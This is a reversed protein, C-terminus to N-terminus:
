LVGNDPRRLGFNHPFRLVRSRWYSDASIGNVLGM